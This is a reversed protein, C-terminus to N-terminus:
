KLADLDAIALHQVALNEATAAADTAKTARAVRILALVVEPSVAAFLERDELYYFDAVLLLCTDRDVFFRGGGHDYRSVTYPGPTAAKALAELRDLNM